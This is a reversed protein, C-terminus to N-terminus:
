RKKAIAAISEAAARRLEADPSGLLSTLLPLADSATPGIKGLTAIMAMKTPADCRGYAQLMVPVARAAKERQAPAAILVEAATQIRTNGVMQIADRAASNALNHKLSKILIPAVRSPDTELKLYLQILDSEVLPLQDNELLEIILPLAEKADVIRAFANVMQLRRQVYETM